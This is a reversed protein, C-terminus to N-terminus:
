GADRRAASGSRATFSAPMSSSGADETGEALAHRIVDRAEAARGGAALAWAHADIWRPM